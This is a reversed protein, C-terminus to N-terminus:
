ACLGIGGEEDEPFSQEPGGARSSSAQNWVCVLPMRSNGTLVWACTLQGPKHIASLIINM